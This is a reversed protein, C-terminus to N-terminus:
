ITRSGTSRVSNADAEEFLALDWRFESTEELNSRQDRTGDVLVSLDFLIDDGEPGSADRMGSAQRVEPEPM